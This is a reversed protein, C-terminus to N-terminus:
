LQSKPIRVGSLRLLRMALQSLEQWAAADADSMHYGSFDTGVALAQEPAGDRVARFEWMPGHYLGGSGLYPGRPGRPSEVRDGALEWFRHREFAAVLAEVRRRTLGRQESTAVHDGDALAALIRCHSPSRLSHVTLTGSGDPHVEVGVAVAVTLYFGALEFWYRHGEAPLKEPSLVTEIQQTAEAAVRQTAEAAVRQTAEAAVRRKESPWEFPNVFAHPLVVLWGALVLLLGLGWRQPTWVRRGVSGGLTLLAAGAVYVVARQRMERTDSTAWVALLAAALVAFGILWPRLSGARRSSSLGSLLSGIVVLTGLLSGPKWCGRCHCATTVLNTYILWWGLGALLVAWWCAASDGRLSWRRWIGGVICGPLIWALIIRVTWDMPTALPQGLTILTGLFSPAGHAVVTVWGGLRRWIRAAPSPRDECAAM